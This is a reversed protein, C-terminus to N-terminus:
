EERISELVGGLCTDSVCCEVIRMSNVVGDEVYCKVAYFGLKANYGKDLMKKYIDSSLKNFTLKAYISNGRIELEARGIPHSSAGCEAVLPVADSTIASRLVEIDKVGCDTLGIKDGLTYVRGEAKLM